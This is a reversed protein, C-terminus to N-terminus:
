MKACFGLVFIVDAHALEVDRGRDVVHVRARVDPVSIGRDGAVRYRAALAHEPRIRKEEGPCVLVPLLDLAGGWCYASSIEAWNRLRQFRIPM